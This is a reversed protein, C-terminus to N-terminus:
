PVLAGPRGQYFVGDSAHTKMGSVHRRVSCERPNILEDLRAAYIAVMGGLRPPEDEVGLVHGRRDAPEDELGGRLRLAIRALEEQARTAIGRCGRHVGHNRSRAPVRRNARQITQAERM